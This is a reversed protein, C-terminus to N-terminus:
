VKLNKLLTEMTDNNRVMASAVSISLSIPPDGKSFETKKLLIRYREVKQSLKEENTDGSIGLFEKESWEGVIHSPKFNHILTGSITKLIGEYTEQGHNNKVEELGEIKIRFIGFPRQSQNWEFFKLKLSTEMYQKNPLGTLSGLSDQQEREEIEELFPKKSSRNSFIEVAGVIENKAGHVPTVRVRVPVRHGEKHHLWIHSDYGEGTEMCRALPCMGTCLNNGKEDIHVLINDSCFKGLIEGSKYGTIAEAAKNWYTVKRQRNAFYVGDELTDLLKWYFEKDEIM